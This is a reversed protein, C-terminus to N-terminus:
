MAAKWTWSLPLTHTYGLHVVFATPIQLVPNAHYRDVLSIETIQTALKQFESDPDGRSLFLDAMVWWNM